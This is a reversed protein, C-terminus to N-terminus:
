SCRRAANFRQLNGAIALALEVGLYKLAVAAILRLDGIPQGLHKHSPRAGVLHSFHSLGQQSDSSTPLVILRRLWPKHM